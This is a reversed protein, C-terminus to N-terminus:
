HKNFYFMQFLFGGQQTSKRVKRNFELPIEAGQKDLEWYLWLFALNSIGAVGVHLSYASNYVVDVPKKWKSYFLKSFYM